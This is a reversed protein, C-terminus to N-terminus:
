IDIHTKKIRRLGWNWGIKQSVTSVGGLNGAFIM